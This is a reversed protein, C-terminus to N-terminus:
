FDESVQVNFLFFLVFFIYIKWRVQCFAVIFILVENFNKGRFFAPLEFDFQFYEDQMNEAFYEVLM